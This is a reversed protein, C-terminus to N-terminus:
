VAGSQLRGDVHDPLLTESNHLRGSSLGPQSPEFSALSTALNAIQPDVTLSPKLDPARMALSESVVQAFSALGHQCAPGNIEKSCNVYEGDRVPIRLTWSKKGSATRFLEQYEEACLRMRIHQFGFDRAASKLAAWCEDVSVARAVADQLQRLTINESVFRRLSGDTLTRLTADFEIYGLKGVGIWIGAAFLILVLGALQKEFVSQLLSLTAGLFGAGYLVIAVRKPTLGRDLLRHHIHGRDPSFIPRGRLFRRAMSLLVDMLPLSVAMLPATMGFVTASKQSWLVGYCGLLFGILLSGCDGLFISAPNFNYRLFALLAGALPATALALSFDEKLLAVIMMSTTAFLGLGSALGDLGDILNFANSCGALWLITIPLSLWEPIAFGAIGNIRVGVIWALASAFMQAVLKQWPKLSRLDDILGVCFIFAAILLLRWIMSM